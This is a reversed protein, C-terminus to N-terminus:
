KWLAVEGLSTDAPYGDLEITLNNVGTVDIEFSIPDTGRYVTMTEKNLLTKDDGYFRLDTSGGETRSSYEQFFYGTIKSYQKNLKYTRYFTGYEADDANVYRLSNNEISHSYEIGTNSKSVEGIIWEGTKDLFDLNSVWVSDSESTSDETPSEKTQPIDIGMNDLQKKIADIRDSVEDYQKQLEENEDQLKKNNDELVSQKDNLVTIQANLNSVRKELDSKDENLSNNEKTLNDNTEQLVSVQVEVQQVKNSEIFKGGLVGLLGIVAAIITTIIKNKAKIQQIREQESVTDGGFYHIFFHVKEFKM